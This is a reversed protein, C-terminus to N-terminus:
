LELLHQMWQVSADFRIYTDYYSMANQRIRELESASTSEIKRRIDNVDDVCLYHHDPIVPSYYTNQFRPSIVVTGIAFCEFERHCSKGLGPLSLAIFHEAMEEYYRDLSIKSHETSLMDRLTDIVCQRGLHNNGRWYVQNKMKPIARLKDLNDSFERPKTKEFYFFPKLKPVRWRPNYQCKLVYQCKPHLIIDACEMKEPHDRDSWDIVKYMGDDHEIVACQDFKIGQYHTIDRCTVRYRDSITKVLLGLRDTMYTRSDERKMIYLKLAPKKPPIVFLM